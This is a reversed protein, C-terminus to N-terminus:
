EKSSQMWIHTYRKRRQRKSRKKEWSNTLGGWLVMKGKQMQKEQPHDQNPSGQHSLQYLIQRCHQPGPNSGQTQFIGQLLSCSGVGSNQGPSNCPSHLGHHRLTPCSQIVKVVRWHCGNNDDKSKEKLRKKEVYIKICHLHYCFLTKLLFARGKHFGVWSRLLSSITTTLKSLWTRSKAIGHVADSWAGRDEM